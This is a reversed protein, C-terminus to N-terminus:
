REEEGELRLLFLTEAAIAKELVSLSLSENVGHARSAPDIIGSMLIAAEPFRDALEAVLAVSGGSGLREPAAGWGDDLAQLLLEEAPHDAPTFVGRAAGGDEIRVHAGFPTHAAIHARLAQWADDISQEPALRVTVKASVSPLLVTPASRPDPLDMGTVTVSPHRWLRDALRGSGIPEVGDLVGSSARHAAEDLDFTSGAGRLLGAVAVSGDSAHFSALLRAMPMMADPYGGGNAGAHVADAHTSVTVVLNIQGRLSHVLAPVTESRNESDAIVVANVEGVDGLAALVDPFTPSGEEEEGEIVVAIGLRPDPRLGLLTELASVHVVVGGKDDASGRGLIRGDERVPEFPAARWGGSEAPQVDHHAYLLVTPAGERAPRVALVAPGGARGDARRGTVVEVRPFLGTAAFLEAVAAASEGLAAAHDPGAISPIRVLGSLRDVAHPLTAKVATRVSEALSPQSRDPM